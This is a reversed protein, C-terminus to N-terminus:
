SVIYTTSAEIKDHPHILRGNPLLIPSLGIHQVNFLGPV